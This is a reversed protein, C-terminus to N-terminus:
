SLPRSSRLRATSSGPLPPYEYKRFRKDFGSAMRPATTPNTKSMAHAFTAFRRSARAADRWFSIAIRTAMPAPRNRSMVCRTVSAIMMETSPPIAPRAKAYQLTCTSSPRIGFPVNGILRFREGSKRSKLKEKPTENSVPSIQPMRGASLAVRGSTM